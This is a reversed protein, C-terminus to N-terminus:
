REAALYTAVLTKWSAFAAAVGKLWFSAILTRAGEGYRRGNKDIAEGDKLWIGWQQMEHRDEELIVCGNNPCVMYVTEAKGLDTSQSSDWKILSWDGEFYEWCHPCPWHWRRRDGRNYLAFIGTAPPAEHPTKAIWKPDTIPKSPSSEALAMAFSGFTTTRKTALDYPSGEGDVDDDMRDYDTLAVRPIPKGAMETSSPHSLTLMTGTTYHKDFKNDADRRKQLLRGIDKSHRNLRDIRRMSFDRSAAQTPSYITIDMPDTKISHAAWNLILADTKGSQAPGVFVTGTFFRSGLVNMPEVMYPTKSNKWWGVYSGQNNLYRYKEATESVEMREPPKMIDLMSLTIDELRKFSTTMPNLAATAM